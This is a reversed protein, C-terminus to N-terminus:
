DEMRAKPLKPQRAKEQKKVLYRDRTSELWTGYYEFVWAVGLVVGAVPSVMIIFPWFLGAIKLEEKDFWVGLSCIILAGLTYGGIIFFALLGIPM